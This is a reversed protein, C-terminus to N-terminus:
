FLDLLLWESNRWTSQKLWNKQMLLCKFFWLWFLKRVTSWYTLCLLLPLSAHIDSIHFKIFSLTTKQSLFMLGWQAEHVMEPYGFCLVHSCLYLIPILETSHVKYHIPVTGWCGHSLNSQVVLIAIGFEKIGNSKLIEASVNPLANLSRHFFSVTMSQFYFHCPICVLKQRMGQHRYRPFIIWMNTM